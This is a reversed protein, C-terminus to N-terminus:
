GLKKKLKQVLLNSQHLKAFDKIQGLGVRTEYCM